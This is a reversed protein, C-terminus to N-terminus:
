HSRKSGRVVFEVGSVGEGKSSARGLGIGWEGMPVLTDKTTRVSHFPLTLCQNKANAEM